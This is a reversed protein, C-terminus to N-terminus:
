ELNPVRSEIKTLQRSLLNNEETKLWFPQKTVHKIFIRTDWSSSKPFEGTKGNTQNETQENKSKQYKNRSHSSNWPEARYIEGQFVWGTKDNRKLLAKHQTPTSLFETQTNEQTSQGHASEGIREEDRKNRQRIGLTGNHNWLGHRWWHKRHWVRNGRTDTQTGAKSIPVPDPRSSGRHYKKIMYKRFM